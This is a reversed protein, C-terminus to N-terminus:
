TSSSNIEEELEAYIANIIESKQEDDEVLKGQKDWIKSEVWEYDENNKLSIEAAKTGSSYWLRQKILEATTKSELGLKGNSYFSQSPGVEKGDEFTGTYSVKGNPHYLTVPGSVYDNEFSFLGIPDKIWLPSSQQTQTKQYFDQVLFRGDKDRGLLKRYYGDKIPILSYSPDITSACGCDQENPTKSFYSIIPQNTSLQQKVAPPINQANPAMSTCGTFLVSMGLLVSSFLTSKNM